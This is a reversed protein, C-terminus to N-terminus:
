AGWRASGRPLRQEGPAMEPVIAGRCISWQRPAKSHHVESFWIRDTAREIQCDRAHGHAEGQGDDGAVIGIGLPGTRNGYVRLIADARADVGCQLPGNAFEGAEGIWQREADFAPADDDIEVARTRAVHILFDLIVQDVAHDDLASSGIHMAHLM